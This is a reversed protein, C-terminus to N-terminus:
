NAVSPATLAFVHALEMRAPGAVRVVAGRRRGQWHAGDGQRMSVLEVRVPCGFGYDSANYVCFRSSTAVNALRTFPLGIIKETWREIGALSTAEMEAMAAKIM